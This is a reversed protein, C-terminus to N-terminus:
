MSNKFTLLLKRARDPSSKFEDPALKTNMFDSFGPLKALEPSRLDRFGMSWDPFSRADIPGASLVIIGKHRQDASITKFLTKVTTEEGELAQMFNGDKYLLMGTVGADTNRKRVAQLLSTLQETTFLESASSVYILTYM